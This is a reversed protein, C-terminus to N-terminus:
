LAEDAPCARTGEPAPEGTTWDYHEAVTSLGEITLGLQSVADFLLVYNPLEGDVDKAHSIFGATWPGPVEALDTAASQLEDRVASHSNSYSRMRFRWVNNGDETWACPTSALDGRNDADVYPIPGRAGMFRLAHNTPYEETTGSTISDIGEVPVQAVWTMLDDVTGLYGQPHPPPTNTFGDWNNPAAEPHHHFAIEHGHNAFARVLALCDGQTVGQYSYGPAGQPGPLQCNTSLVHAAWQATFMLPLKHNGTDAAEVLSVLDDFYELGRSPNPETSGPLNPQSGPDLHVAFYAHRLGALTSESSDDDDSSTADNDDSSTADDDDASDDDDADCGLVPLV